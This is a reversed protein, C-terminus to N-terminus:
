MRSNMWSMQHITLLSHEILRVHSMGDLDSLDDEEPDSAIDDKVEQKAKPAEEVKVTEEKKELADAM